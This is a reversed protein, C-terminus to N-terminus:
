TISPANQKDIKIEVNNTKGIVNNSPINQKDILLNVNNTKGVVDSNLTYNKILTVDKPLFYNMIFTDPTFAIQSQERSQGINIPITKVTTRSKFSLKISQGAEVLKAMQLYSIGNMEILDTFKFQFFEDENAEYFPLVIYNNYNLVTTLLRLKHAWDNQINQKNVIFQKIEVNIYARYKRNIEIIEGNWDNTMVTVEPKYHLICISKDAIFKNSYDIINNDYIAFNSKGWISRNM